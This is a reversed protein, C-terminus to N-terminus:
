YSTPIGLRKSINNKEENIQLIWKIDDTEQKAGSQLTNAIFNLSKSADRINEKKPLGFVIRVLSYSPISYASAVLKAALEKARGSVENSESANSIRAQNQLIFGCTEGIVGRLIIAPEIFMKLLVQGCVFISVGVIVGGMLDDKMKGQKVV